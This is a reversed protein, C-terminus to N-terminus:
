ILLRCLSLFAPPGLAPPARAPATAVTAAEVIPAVREYAPLVLAIAPPPVSASAEHTLAVAAQTVSSLHECCEPSRLSIQEEGRAHTAQEPCCCDAVVQARMHCFYRAREPAAAALLAVLTALLALLRARPSRM